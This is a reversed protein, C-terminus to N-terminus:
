QEWTDRVKEWTDRVKEWTDRVKEMKIGLLAHSGAPLSMGLDKVLPPEDREHLLVKVGRASLPGNMHDYMEINMLLRLGNQSGTVFM